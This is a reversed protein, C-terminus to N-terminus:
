ARAEEGTLFFVARATPGGRLSRAERVTDQESVEAIPVDWWSEYSGVRRERDVPIVILGGISSFGHNDLLVITLEHEGTDRVLSQERALRRAEFHLLDWGATAPDIAM